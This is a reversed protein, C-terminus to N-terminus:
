VTRVANFSIEKKFKRVPDSITKENFDGTFCYQGVLEFDGTDYNIEYMYFFKITPSFLDLLFQKYKDKKRFTCKITKTEKSDGYLSYISSYGGYSEVVQHVSPQKLSLDYDKILYSRDEFVLKLM